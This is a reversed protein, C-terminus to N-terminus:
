KMIWPWLRLFNGSYRGVFVEARTLHKGQAQFHQWLLLIALTHNKKLYLALTICKKWIELQSTLSKLSKSFELLGLVRCWFHIAGLPYMLEIHELLNQKECVFLVELSAFCVVLVVFKLVFKWFGNCFYKHFFILFLCVTKLKPMKIQKILNLFNVPKFEM